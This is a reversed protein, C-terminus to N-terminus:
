FCRGRDGTLDIHRIIESFGEPLRTDAHLFLLFEGKASEAGANMQRARGVPGGLVRAGCSRAIELTRDKSGGDVVIREVDSANQTSALCVAINEEGNLTPIIISILPNNEKHM